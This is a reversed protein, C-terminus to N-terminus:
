RSATSNTADRHAGPQPDRGRERARQREVVEVDRRGPAERDGVPLVPDREDHEEDRRDHGARQGRDRAAARQLGLLATTFGVQRRLHGPRQQAALVLGFPEDVAEGDHRAPAEVVAAGRELLHVERGDQSRAGLEAEDVLESM